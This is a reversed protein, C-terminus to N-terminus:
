AKHVKGGRRLNEPSGAAGLSMRAKVNVSKPPADSRAKPSLNMSAKKVAGGVKLGMAAQAGDDVASPAPRKLAFRSKQAGRPQMVPAPRAGPAAGAVGGAAYALGGRRLKSLNTHKSEHLQTDHMGFARKILAKDEKLDPHVSGGAAYKRSDKGIENKKPQGMLDGLLKGSGGVGGGPIAGGAAFGMPKKIQDKPTAIKPKIDGFNPKINPKEPLNVPGGQAFKKGASAKKGESIGIAVAQDRNKVVPGSKSGSHLDGSGFEHMVKSVKAQAVKGGRAYGRVYTTEGKPFTFEGYTPGKGM